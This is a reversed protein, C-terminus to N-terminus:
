DEQSNKVRFARRYSKYFAEEADEKSLGFVHEDDKDAQLITEYLDDASAEKCGEKGLTRGIMQLTYIRDDPGELEMLEQLPYMEVDGGVEAWERVNDRVRDRGVKKGIEYDPM